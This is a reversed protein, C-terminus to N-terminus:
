RGKAENKKEKEPPLKSEAEVAATAERAATTEALVLEREAIRYILRLPIGSSRIGALKEQHVGILDHRAKLKLMTNKAETALNRMKTKSGFPADESARTAADSVGVSQTYATAIDEVLIQVDSQRVPVWGREFNDFSEPVQLAWAANLEAKGRWRREVTLGFLQEDPLPRFVVVAPQRGEFNENLVLAEAWVGQKPFPGVVVAISDPNPSSPLDFKVEAKLTKEDLQFGEILLPERLATMVATGNLPEIKLLCNSLSTASSKPDLGEAWRFQLSGEVLSFEGVPLAETDGAKKRSVVLWSAKEPAPQLEFVIRSKAVTEPDYQLQLAFQGATLNPLPGLTRAADGPNGLGVAPPFGSLVAVSPQSMPQGALPNEGQNLDGAASSPEGSPKLGKQNEVEGTTGRGSKKAPIQFPDKEQKMGGAAAEPVVAPKGVGSDLPQRPEGGAIPQLSEALGPPVLEGEPVPETKEPLLPNSAPASGLRDPQSIPSRVLEKSEVRATSTKNASPEGPLFRWLVYGLLGVAALVAVVLSYLQLWSKRSGAKKGLASRSERQDRSKAAPVSRNLSRSQDPRPKAPEAVAEPANTGVPHESELGLDSEAAVVRLERRWQEIRKALEGLAQPEDVAADLLSRWSEFETARFHRTLLRGALERWERRDLLLWEPEADATESNLTRRLGAECLGVLKGEGSPELLLGAAAIEGHALGRTQLAALANSIGQLLGAAEAQTLTALSRADLQRGLSHEYVVFLRGGEEGLDFVHELRSDDLATLKGIFNTIGHFGPSQRTLTEPLIQLRVQRHLPEHWALFCDGLDDRRLREQLLYNGVRLRNRGSLIFKAQWDTLLGSQVLALALAKPEGEQFREAFPQLDSEPIVAADRLDKLFRDLQSTSM